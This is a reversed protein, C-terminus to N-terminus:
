GEKPPDPLPMWHTVSAAEWEPYEDIIWGDESFYCALVYAGNLTINPMPKGSAIALVADDTAPLRDKVDIWQKKKLAAAASRLIACGRVSCSHEHGCGYCALSGTEVKLRQIARILDQTNMERM